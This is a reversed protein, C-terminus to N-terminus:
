ATSSPCIDRYPCYGCALYDPRAEFRGARIGAAAQAIKARAKALRAPEPVTRGTLGSEMFHLQVAAPLTGTEAEHALAYVQLQLSERAKETARTQERVDSSKLDTIVTGAPTEDVRDYRGRVIDGGIRVSFTREVAAPAIAGSRTQEAHFRVLAARGSAYRAEEHQRSLFGEGSWHVDFVELLADQDMPRGRSQATHFAAAAQHLANGLVLAHHPPTPVRVVHRLRFKLPCTLYDDIQSYSLTLPEDVGVPAPSRVAATARSPPEAAAALREVLAAPTGSSITAHLGDLPRDLAEGLFPSPRRARGAATRRSWSLHLEDRARTMAVYCLRREEAFPAELGDAEGMGPGVALAPLPLRDARGRLPFRGDVLGILFVVPFELGKAKHVTLVSVAQQDGDSLPEAPDDGAEALTRLHPVLFALRDDQLVASQARIIDFLRAVNRLPADDGREAAAILDRLRGSRKLHEYLVEGAPRRHAAELGALMDSRLRALKQRSEATLRLVGPQDIVEGVAWWLSRHRRRSMELLATMDVGGLRYPAGTAVAYLDVSAEPDAVARLLSLLDRVERQAYLGLAGSFRVPLGRMALSRLVPAADSNTRVLVAFDAPTAGGEVRDAIRAAVADAEEEASAYGQVQVPAARRGRRVTVLSKDLGELVELRHPDNHRVLRQAVALIPRRSRHNRRLVVRRAGDFASTFGLINGMAAGRFTYISQDDDGVVTVNRPPGSLLRLLEAQQPNTDQFEDVVIYRFRRQLEARVAPRERLLKVAAHVQDGFDILGRERLLRQYHGYAVALERQGEASEVLALAADRSAEDTAAELAGAAARAQDEASTGLDAPTLGQDKARGCRDVLAGLFRTPDALPRYRELGLEFLQERLLVVAEARSIVRPESPLGLEYAFERLLRDGFAHFTHISAEAHGYPVLVDVRSQMEDAARDTFTLALVESPRARKTAILWALRRTIVETKGTGPGAIVLLPGEGHTVARRQDRDLGRLLEAVRHLSVPASSNRPGAEIPRATPLLPRDPATM